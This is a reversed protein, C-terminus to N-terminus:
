FSRKITDRASNLWECLVNFNRFGLKRLINRKHISVVKENICYRESVETVSYGAALAQMVEIERSTLKPPHPSRHYEVHKSPQLAKKIIRTTDMLSSDRYLIKVWPCIPFNNVKMHHREVVYILRVSTNHCALFSTPLNWFTKSTFFILMLPMGPQHYELSIQQTIFKLLGQAFIYNDDMVIIETNRLQSVLQAVGRIKEAHEIVVSKKLRSSTFSNKVHSQNKVSTKSIEFLDHESIGRKPCSILLNSKDNM